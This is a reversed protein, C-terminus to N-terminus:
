AAPVRAVNAASEFAGRLEAVINIIQDLRKANPNKAEDMLVGYVFGYIARLNEGLEGGKAVDLSTLLEMLGARSRTLADLRVELNHAEAATRARHLNALVHDFVLVVLRAPSATMVERERYASAAKSYNSYSM